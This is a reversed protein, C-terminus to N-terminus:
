FVTQDIGLESIIIIIDRFVGLKNKQQHTYKDTPINTELSVKGEYIICFTYNKKSPFPFSFYLPLHHINSYFHKLPWGAPCSVDFLAVSLCFCWLPSFLLLFMISFEQWKTSAPWSQQLNGSQMPVM